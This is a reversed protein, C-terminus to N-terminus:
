ILNEFLCFIASVLSDLRCVAPSLFPAPFWTSCSSDTSKQPGPVAWLSWFWPATNNDIFLCLPPDPEYHFSCQPALCQQSQLHWSNVRCGVSWCSVHFICSSCFTLSGREMSWSRPHSSCCLGRAAPAAWARSQVLLVRDSLLCPEEWRLLACVAGQWGWLM